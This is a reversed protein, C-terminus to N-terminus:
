LEKPVADDRLSPHRQLAGRAAQDFEAAAQKPSPQKAIWDQICAEIMEFLMEQRSDWAPCKKELHKMKAVTTVPLRVTIAQLAGWLRFIGYSVHNLNGQKLLYDRRENIRDVFNSM